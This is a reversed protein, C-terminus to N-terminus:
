FDLGGSSQKPQWNGQGTVPNRPDAEAVSTVITQVWPLHEEVYERLQKELTLGSLACGSCSGSLEVSLTGARADVEKIQIHGNDPGVVREQFTEVLLEAIEQRVAVENDTVRHAPSSRFNRTKVEIPKQSAPTPTPAPTRAPTNRNFM